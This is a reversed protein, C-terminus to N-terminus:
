AKGAYQEDVQRSSEQKVLYDNIIAGTERWQDRVKNVYDRLSFLETKLRRNEATLNDIKDQYWQGEM